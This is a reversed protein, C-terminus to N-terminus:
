DCLGLQQLWHATSTDVADLVATDRNVMQRALHKGFEVGWQDFPNIGWLVAQAFVKHEYLALLAGLAHAKLDPLVILTSPRRGPHILHPALAEIEQTSLKTQQSLQQRAQELSQGKWLAARQALCNGLLQQHHSDHGSEAHRRIIFDVPAGRQDQHLWQFFTHQSDTGPMGWVAPSINMRIFRNDRDVFKGLSEMELQQLWMVFGALRADYPCIVQSSYNLATTNVLSSLAMQVPANVLTPTELFHTDMDRAGRLLDSFTQWGLALALSLGISSWVSYRGGVWDWFEFIHESAIGFTQAAQPNATLAITQKLPDQVGGDRMWQLARKANTLAELTTFSKSAIVLLTDHPNLGDLAATIAQADINAAFRLTRRTRQGRLAEWVMRPGWDSGGIGLHVINTYQNRQNSQEVFAAMKQLSTQVLQQIAEPARSGRLATHMAGRNETWNILAGDFLEDRKREFDCSQLLQESATILEPTHIQLSLDIELGAASLIRTSPNAVTTAAQAANFFEHWAPSISLSGSM